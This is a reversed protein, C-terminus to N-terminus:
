HSDISLIASEPFPTVTPCDFPYSPGLATLVGSLLPSHWVVEEPIKDLTDSQWLSEVGLSKDPCGVHMICAGKTSSATRVFEVPRGADFDRNTRILVPMGGGFPRNKDPNDDPMGRSLRPGQATALRDHHRHSSLWCNSHQRGLSCERGPGGFWGGYM